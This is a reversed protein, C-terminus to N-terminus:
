REIGDYKLIDKLEDILSYDKNFPGLDLIKIRHNHNRCFKVLFDNLFFEQIIIQYIFM